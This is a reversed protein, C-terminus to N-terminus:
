LLRITWIITAADAKKEAAAPNAVAKLLQEKNM